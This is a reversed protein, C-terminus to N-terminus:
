DLDDDSHNKEHAADLASLHGQWPAFQINSFSSNITGKIYNKLTNISSKRESYYHYSIYIGWFLGKTFDIPMIPNSVNTLLYNLSLLVFIYINWLSYYAELSVKRELINISRPLDSWILVYISKYLCISLILTSTLDPRHMIGYYMINIHILAGLLMFLIDYVISRVVNYVKSIQYGLRLTMFIFLCLAQYRDNNKFYLATPIIFLLTTGISIYNSLYISVKNSDYTTM